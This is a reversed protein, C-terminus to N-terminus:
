RGGPPTERAALKEPLWVFLSLGTPMGIRVFETDETARWRYTPPLLEGKRVTLAVPLESAHEVRKGSQITWSTVRRVLQGYEGAGKWGGYERTLVVLGRRQLATSPV